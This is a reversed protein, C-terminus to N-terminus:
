ISAQKLCGIVLQHALSAEVELLLLSRFIKLGEIILTFYKQFYLTSM